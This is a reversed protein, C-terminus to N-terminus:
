KRMLELSPASFFLFAYLAKRANSLDKRCRQVISRNMITELILLRFGTTWNLRVNNDATPTTTIKNLLQKETTSSSYNKELLRALPKASYPLTRQIGLGVFLDRILLSNGRKQRQTWPIANFCSSFKHIWWKYWTKFKTSTILITLDESWTRQPKIYKADLAKLLGQASM